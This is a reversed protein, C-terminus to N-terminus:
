SSVWPSHIAAMQPSDASTSAFLLFILNVLYLLESAIGRSPIDFILCVIVTHGLFEMGLHIGYLVSFLYEFLYMYM